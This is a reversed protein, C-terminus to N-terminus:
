SWLGEAFGNLIEVSCDLLIGVVGSTIRSQRLTIYHQRKIRWHGCRFRVLLRSFGGGVCQREIVRRRFSVKRNALHIEILIPIERGGLLLESRSQGQVRVVRSRVLPVTLEKGHHSAM